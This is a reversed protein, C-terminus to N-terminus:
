RHDIEYDHCTIFVDEGSPTGVATYGGGSQPCTLQRGIMDIVGVHEYYDTDEEISKNNLLSHAIISKRLLSQSTLCNARNSAELYGKGTFFLVIILTLMVSIIVTLEILTFGPCCRRMDVCRTRQNLTM